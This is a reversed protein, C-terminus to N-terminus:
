RGAAGLHMCGHLSDANGNTFMICAGLVTSARRVKYWARTFADCDHIFFTRSYVTITGGIRFDSPSYYSKKERGM